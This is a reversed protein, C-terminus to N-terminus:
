IRDGSRGLDVAIGRAAPREPFREAPIALGSADRHALVSPTMIEVGAANFADLVNRRLDSSTRLLRDPQDTLNTAAMLDYNVAYDGLASKLVFPAPDAVINETRRAADIMLAEVTRWDVDYGIGATVTLVVGESAARASYDVVTSTLVVSNPITVEENRATRLRTSLTTKELVIGVVDGIKVMDGVRFARAYTLVLGSVINNISGSSGFTILAGLFLSFGKFAESNSGPLYPYSIMLLFLFLLARCLKFTPEAWEPLFGSLTLSGDALSHFFYKLLRGLVWGLGMIIALYALNPLYNIIAQIVDRTPYGMYAEVADVVARTRPFYRMVWPIFVLLLFVLATVRFSHNLLSFGRRMHRRLSTPPYAAQRQAWRELRSEITWFVSGVSQIMLILLLTSMFTYYVATLVAGAVGPELFPVLGELSRGLDWLAAELFGRILFLLFITLLNIMFFWYKKRGLQTGRVGTFVVIARRIVFFLATLIVLAVVNRLISMGTASVGGSVGLSQTM